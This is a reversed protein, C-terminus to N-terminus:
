QEFLTKIDIEQEVEASPPIEIYDKDGVSFFLVAEPQRRELLSGTDVISNRNGDDTIRISYKGEQLYPFELICDSDVIYTRLSKKRSEDLLSVIIKRDVNTLPTRLVSLKEDTPLSVKVQTSDSYFGGIDRFAHHPVKLTYEYGPLMKETPRIIYRRLNATDREVTVSSKFEKQKPNLYRFDLSDFMEYIIPLSFELEIGNQEVTEPTATLKFVCTTDEKKINKRQMKQLVRRGEPMTLKLHELSPRLVGLSDTKRYNVFVHLTDPAPKRNNVWIELSDQLINFQTILQEPKYGRVWLSDIWVYPAMFTIYASRDGTREKNVLYQKTPKERFLRLKFDKPRAECMLTDLMDYKLMEPLTDVVRKVPRILSDVFAVLDTDPDYINNNSEDKIAYLRYLTDALYPLCFYGWDDTKVAADPRHLFVASDSLDKYLLVTADKVPRLSNCDQVVGSILLSDITQGTSFVYTYGPFLNGENNDALANSLNLTYTTNSDLPEEFQVILFKDRIRSKPAKAQPPSLFINKPNKITVYEDFRFVIKTGTVPVGVAGPLPNIDIILPPLTDKLGGTPAQTTNACSHIFIMPVFLAVSVFLPIYRKIQM